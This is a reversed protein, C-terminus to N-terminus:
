GAGAPASSQVDAGIRRALAEGSILCDGVAIGGRYNGCLYLGPVERELGRIEEMLALHGLHYQPIAKEWRIIKTYVPDGRVGMLSRLESVVVGTLESEELAAISPQRTGGVFTTLAVHGAPARGPFLASSWITGLINRKENAPILYGFGDLPRGVSSAPFGLFVEAVPPYEIRGLAVGLARSGRGGTVSL